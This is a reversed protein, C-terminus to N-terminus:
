EPCAVKDLPMTSSFELKSVDKFRTGDENMEGYGEVLKDGQLQFAIQRVSETGESQFTYDLLLINNEFTGTFTGKNSDKEAIVYNLTGTVDNGNYQIQMEIKNGTANYAYCEKKLVETKTEETVTTVTTAEVPTEKKCSIFLMAFVISFLIRTKM